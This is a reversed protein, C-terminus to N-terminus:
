RRRRRGVTLPTMFFRTERGKRVLFGASVVRSLVVVIVVVTVVVIVFLLVIVVVVLSNDIERNIM